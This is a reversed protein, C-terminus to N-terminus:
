SLDWEPHEAVPHRATDVTATLLVDPHEQLLTLPYEATPDAFLAVRLATQKWAGTDSFLRIRRAALIERMGLTVSMPPVFQYAGGFTRQALAVITDVNNEQVRATSTRLEEVTQPSFPNRRAQNYAVHGDQGWGGYVLDAPRALLEETIRALNGPAPWHRQSEPAALEPAIPDYFERQMFGRFSYPHRLPVPRAQWDLCEDMHFVELGALSVREANVLEAFPAYWAAPGCPVVARLPGAQIAEVLERAMLRGMAASDPCIRLRLRAEPHEALRDAPVACWRRLDDRDVM